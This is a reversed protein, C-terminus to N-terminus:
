ENLAPLPATVEGVSPARVERRSVSVAAAGDVEHCDTFNWNRRETESAQVSMGAPLTVDLPVARAPQGTVTVLLAEDGSTHSTAEVSPSSPEPCTRASNVSVEDTVWSVEATSKVSSRTSDSDAVVPVPGPESLREVPM